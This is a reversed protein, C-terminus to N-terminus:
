PSDVWWYRLPTDRHRCRGAYGLAVLEGLMTRIRNEGMLELGDRDDARAAVEQLTLGAAPFRACDYLVDRIAMHARDLM